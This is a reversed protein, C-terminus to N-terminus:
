NPPPPSVTKFAPLACAHTYIQVIKPFKDLKMKYHIAGIVQPILILDALTISDGFCYLGATKELMAEVHTFGRTIWYIPWLSPDPHCLKEKEEEARNERETLLSKLTEQWDGPFYVFQDLPNIEKPLRGTLLAGLKPDNYQQILKVLVRKNQLPQIGSNIVEVVRRVQARARPNKPLLPPEPRTEELYELIAASQFFFEGDIFLVPLEGAPNIALFSPQLNEDKALNLNKFEYDIKKVALALRVRNTTSSSESGYLVTNHEMGRTPGFELRVEV